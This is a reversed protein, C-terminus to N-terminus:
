KNKTTMMLITQHNMMTTTMTMEMM